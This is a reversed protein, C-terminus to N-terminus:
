RNQFDGLIKVEFKVRFFVLFCCYFWHLRLIVTKKRIARVSLFMLLVITIQVKKRIM